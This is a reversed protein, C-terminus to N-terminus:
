IIMKIEHQQITQYLPKPHASRAATSCVALNEKLSIQMHHGIRCVQNRLIFHLSQVNKFKFSSWRKGIRKIPDIGDVFELINRCNQEEYQPIDSTYVSVTHETVTSHMGKADEM